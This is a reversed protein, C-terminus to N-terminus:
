VVEHLFFTVFKSFECTHESGQKLLSGLLSIVMDLYSGMYLLGYWIIVADPDGFFFMMQVVLVCYPVVQLRPKNIRKWVVQHLFTTIESFNWDHESYKTHDGFTGM